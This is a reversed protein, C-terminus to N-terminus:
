SGIPSCQDAFEGCCTLDRASHSRVRQVLKIDAVWNRLGLRADNADEPHDWQLLCGPTSSGNDILAYHRPAVVEDHQLVKLVGHYQPLSKVRPVWVCDAAVTYADHTHVLTVRGNV